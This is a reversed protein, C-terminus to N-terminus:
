GRDVEVQGVGVRLGLDIGTPGTYGADVQTQRPNIGSHENGLLRLDGIGAHAVVRVPTGRPVIVVLRGAGVDARVSRGALDGARTLDLRAEGSDLHYSTQLTGASLPQWTVHRGGDWNGGIAVSTLMAATLPVAVAM